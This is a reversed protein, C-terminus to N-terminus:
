DLRPAMAASGKPMRAKFTVGGVIVILGATTLRTEVSRTRGVTANALRRAHSVQSPDSPWRGGEPGLPTSRSGSAAIPCAEAKFPTERWNDLGVGPRECSAARSKSILLRYSTRRWDIFGSM